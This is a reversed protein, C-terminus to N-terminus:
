KLVARYEHEWVTDELKWKAQRAWYDEPYNKILEKFTEIAKDYNKQAKYVGGLQFLGWPTDQFQPYKRTVRRYYKGAKDYQETRYFHDAIRYYSDPVRVYVSNKEGAKIAERFREVARNRNDIKFYTEGAKFDAHVRDLPSSAKEAAHTYADVARKHDELDVYCDGLYEYAKGVWNHSRNGRIFGRFLQEATRPEDRKYYSLAKLFAARGTLDHTGFRDIVQQFQNEAARYNGLKMYCIGMDYTSRASIDGRPYEALVTKFEKLANDYKGENFERVAGLMARGPDTLTDVISMSLMSDIRVEIPTPRVEPPIQSLERHLDGRIIEKIDVKLTDKGAADLIAQYRNILGQAERRGPEYDTLEIYSRLHKIAQAYNKEEGFIKGLYFHANYGLEPYALGKTFNIKAMGNRGQRRRILGAYYYAGAHGPSMALTTKLHELAKIMLSNDRTDIAKEYALVGHKFEEDISPGKKYSPSSGRPAARPVSGGIKTPKPTKQAKPTPEPKGSLTDLLGTGDPTEGGSQVINMLKDIVKQVSDREAPDCSNYYKQWEEIADQFRRDRAYADALMRRAKSWGPNYDLSKQLNYVALRYQGQLGRIEALQMYANYNDPYAGLVKRFEEVAQDLKRQEKYKVGLRYHIYDETGAAHTTAFPFM